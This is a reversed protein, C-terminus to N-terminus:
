ESKVTWLHPSKIDRVFGQSAALGSPETFSWPSLSGESPNNSILFGKLALSLVRARYLTRGRLLSDIFVM